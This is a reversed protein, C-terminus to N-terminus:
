AVRTQVPNTRPDNVSRSDGLGLIRTIRWLGVHFWVRVNRVDRLRRLAVPARCSGARRELTTLRRAAPPFPRQTGTVTRYRRAWVAMKGCDFLHNPLTRIREWRLGGVQIIGNASCTRNSASVPSTSNSSDDSKDIAPASLTSGDQARAARRVHTRTAPSEISGVSPPARTTTSLPGGPDRHVLLQEDHADDLRQHDLAKPLDAVLPVQDAIPQSM